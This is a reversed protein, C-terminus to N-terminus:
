LQLESLLLIKVIIILLGHRAGRLTLEILNENVKSNVECSKINVSYDLIFDNTDIIECKTSAIVLILISNLLVM